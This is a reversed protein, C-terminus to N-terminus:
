EHATVEEHKFLEGLFVYIFRIIEEEKKKSHDLGQIVDLIIERM